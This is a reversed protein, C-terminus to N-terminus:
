VEVDILGSVRFEPGCLRSRDLIERFFAELLPLASDTHSLTENSTRRAARASATKKEPDMSGLTHFVVTDRRLVCAVLDIVVVWLEVLRSLADRTRLWCFPRKRQRLWQIM